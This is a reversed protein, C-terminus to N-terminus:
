GSPNPRDDEQLDRAQSAASQRVDDAAAKAESTVADASERASAKVEEVADMVEPKMAQAAQQGARAVEAAADDLTDQARDVVRQEERSPPILTAALLGIGVGILGAALPNGETFDGVADPGAHRAHDLTDSARQTLSETGGSNRHRDATGFLSDRIGGVGQRLKAKQRDAIRNPAVRDTVLDVDRAIAERHRDSERRLEEIHQDTM